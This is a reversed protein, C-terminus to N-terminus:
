AGAGAGARFSFGMRGNGVAGRRADRHRSSAAAVGAVALSSTMRWLVGPLLKGIAAALLLCLSALLPATPLPRM